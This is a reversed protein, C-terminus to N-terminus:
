TSLNDSCRQHPVKTEKQLLVADIYLLLSKPPYESVVSQVLSIVKSSAKTVNKFTEKLTSGFGNRTATNTLSGTSSRHEDPSDDVDNMFDDDDLTVDLSDMSNAKILQKDLPEPLEFDVKNHSRQEEGLFSWFLSLCVPLSPRHVRNSYIFDPITVM